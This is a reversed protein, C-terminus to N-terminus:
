VEAHPTVPSHAEVLLDMLESVLQATQRVDFQQDGLLVYPGDTVGTAPETAASLRLSTRRVRVEAGVHVADDEGTLEGHSVVCWSPCDRPRERQMPIM